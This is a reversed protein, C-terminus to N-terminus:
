KLSQEYRKTYEEAQKKYWNQWYLKKEALHKMASAKITFAKHDEDYPKFITLTNKESIVAICNEKDNYYKEAFTIEFGMLPYVKNKSFDSSYSDAIWYKKLKIEKM